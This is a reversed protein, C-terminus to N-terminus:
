GQVRSRDIIPPVYVKYNPETSPAISTCSILKEQEEVTLKNGPTAAKKRIGDCDIAASSNSNSKKPAEATCTTSLAPLSAICIAWFGMWFFHNLTPM